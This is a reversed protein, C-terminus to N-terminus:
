LNRLSKTEYTAAYFCVSSKPTYVISEESELFLPTWGNIMKHRHLAERAKKLLEYVGPSGADGRAAPSSGRINRDGILLTLGMSCRDRNNAIQNSMGAALVYICPFRVTIEELDDIEAQGAYAELTRLGQAKLPELAAIVADELQEFEHM